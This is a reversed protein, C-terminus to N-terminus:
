RNITFRKVITEKENEFQLFYSGIPLVSINIENTFDQELVKEGLVNFISMRVVEKQHFIDTEIQLFDSAPNPFLHIQNALANNNESIGVGNINITETFSFAEGCLTFSLNVEYIGNATYNHIPNVATSNTNDGFDWVIDNAHYPSQFELEGIDLIQHSFTTDSTFPLGVCVTQQYTSTDQCLIASLTVHYEGSQEYQYNINEENEIQTGNGLDWVYFGGNQTYVLESENETTISLSEHNINGSFDAIPMTIVGVCNTKVVLLSAIGGEESRGAAIFGGEKTTHMSYGYDNGTGIDYKRRWQPVGSATLSLLQLRRQNNLLPDPWSGVITFNGDETEVTQLIVGIEAFEESFSWEEDFDADLKYIDFHKVLSGGWFSGFTVLVGGDETAVIHVERAQYAMPPPMDNHEIEIEKHLLINGEEDIKIIHADSQTSSGQVGAEASLFYGSGDKAAEIDYFRGNPLFNTYVTDWIETGFEDLKILYPYTDLQEDSDIYGSVLYEENSSQAAGLGYTGQNAPGITDIKILNGVSDTMLYLSNNYHTENYGTGGVSFFGYDTIITHKLSYGNTNENAQFPFDQAQIFNGFSDIEAAYGHWNDTYTSGFIMHNGQNNPLVSWGNHLNNWAYLQAFYPSDQAKTQINILLLLIIIIKLLNKM